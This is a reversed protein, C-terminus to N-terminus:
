KPVSNILTLLFDYASNGTIGYASNIFLDKVAALYSSDEDKIKNLTSIIEQSSAESPPSNLLEKIHQLHSEMLSTNAHSLALSSIAIKNSGKLSKGLLKHLSIVQEELSTIRNETKNKDREYMNIIKQNHRIEMASMELKMELREIDVDNDLISSANSSGTVVEGYANLTKEIKEIVGIDSEIILTVIDDHREIRIKAEIDTYKQKLVEGFYSLISIGAQIHEPEFAISRFIETQSFDPLVIDDEIGSITILVKIDDVMEPDIVTGVVVSTEDSAVERVVNGVEEFENIQMDLGAIISIILGKTESYSFDRVEQADLLALRTARTARGEGSASGIGTISTQGMGGLVVKIDSTDVNILGPKLILSSLGYITSSMYQDTRHFINNTNIQKSKLIYDNNVVVTSDGSLKIKQFASLAIRRKRDGEFSFPLSIISITLIGLEQLLKAIYPTAGSGTGGGLGAVIFVIDYSGLTKTILEKHDEACKRGLYPEGNTGLNQTESIGISIKNTAQLNTLYEDQSHIHFLDATNEILSQLSSIITCGARGVGLVAVKYSRDNEVQFM